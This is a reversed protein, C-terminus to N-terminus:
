LYKVFQNNRKNFFNLTILLLVVSVALTWIIYVNPAEGRVLVNKYSTFLPAIPNLLCYLNQYKEPVDSLNYLGPSAYFWIRMGFLLINQLDRFYLGGLSVAMSIAGVFLFQVLVLFPLYILNATPIVKFGVLLGVVVILGLLFNVFGIMTRALPLISKPFRITQILKANSVLSKVSTSMSTAVWRFSLLSIFLFIPYYEGGRQFILKVLVLYVLMFFIPDLIAWAFGFVKNSYTVRLESLVLYKLLEKKNLIEKIEGLM